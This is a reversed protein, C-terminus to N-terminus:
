KGSVAGAGFKLEREFQEASLTGDIAECNENFVSYASPEWAKRTGHKMSVFVWYFLSVIFYVTGFEIQIFFGWLLIWLLLKLFFILRTYFKENETALEGIWGTCSTRFRSCQPFSVFELVTRSSDVYKKGKRARYAELEKEM